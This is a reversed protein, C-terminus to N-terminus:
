MLRPHKNGGVYFVPNQRGFTEPDDDAAEVVREAQSLKTHGIGAFNAALERSESTAKTKRKGVTDATEASVTYQGKEDRDFSDLRRKEAAIRLGPSIARKIAVTESPTLNKRIANEAFEGKEVVDLDVINVPIDSEPRGLHQWFLPSSPQGPRGSVPSSDVYPHGEHGTVAPM